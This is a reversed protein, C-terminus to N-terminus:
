PPANEQLHPVGATALVREAAVDTDLVAVQPLSLSRYPLLPLSLSHSPTHLHTRSLSPTHTHSLPHSLSLFLTHTHSLSLSPPSRSLSSLSLSLARTLPRSLTHSLAIVQEVVVGKDLVCVRPAAAITSARHAILLM